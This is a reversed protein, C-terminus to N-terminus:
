LYHSYDHEICYWEEQEGMGKRNLYISPRVVGYLCSSTIGDALYVPLKRSGQGKGSFAPVEKRFLGLMTSFSINVSVIVVAIVVMGVAWVVPLVKQWNIAPFRFASTEQQSAPIRDSELAITEASIIHKTRGGEALEDASDPLNDAIKTLNELEVYRIGHLEFYAKQEERFMGAEAEPQMSEQAEKQEEVLSKGGEALSLLNFSLEGFNVPCLLRVLVILWLAYTYKAKMKEKFLGRVALVLLILVSSTLIWQIM